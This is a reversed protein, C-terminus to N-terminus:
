ISVPPLVATRNPRLGFRFLEDETVFSCRIPYVDLEYRRSGLPRYSRTDIRVEAGDRLALARAAAYQFMQNGLGGMLKTVVIQM